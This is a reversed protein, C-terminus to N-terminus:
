LEVINVQLDVNGGNFSVANNVVKVSYGYYRAGTRWFGGNAQLPGSCVPASWGTMAQVCGSSTWFAAMLTFETYVWAQWTTAVTVSQFSHLVFSGRNTYSPTLEGRSREAAYLARPVGADKLASRLEFFLLATPRANLAEFINTDGEIVPTADTISGSVKARGDLYTTEEFGNALKSDLIVGDKDFIKSHHVGNTVGLEFDIRNGDREFSGSVFDPRQQGITLGRHADTVAAETAASTDADASAACGTGFAVLSSALAALLSTTKIM